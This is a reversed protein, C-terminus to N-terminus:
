NKGECSFSTTKSYKCEVEPNLFVLVSNAENVQRTSTKDRKQREKVPHEKHMKTEQLVKLFLCSTSNRIAGKFTITFKIKNKEEGSEMTNLLPRVFFDM